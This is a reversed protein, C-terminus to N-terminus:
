APETERPATEGPAAGGEASRLHGALLDNIRPLFKPPLDHAMGDIIEVRAGPVSAAIDLGARLPTLPDISGHIVLTPAEVRRAFRRLDGTAIIAAIQRRIGAPYTCRDVAGAIRARFEDPDNGGDPTGIMNWLAVSRDILEERTRPRTRVAFIEQLIKPDAKPLSPNNTSSMITTLSIVRDKHNASLIQGIMGGMSVGVVHAADIDFADLVGVSDRAMDELTYPALASAFPLRSLVAFATPRPARKAHLKQSLGVDRNDMALVRYGADALADVFAHPWHTLQAALGMILLVAPGDKPGHTEVEIDIGNAKILPM